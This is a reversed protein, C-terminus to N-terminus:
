ERFIVKVRGNHPHQFTLKKVVNKYEELINKFQRLKKIDRELTLGKTKM